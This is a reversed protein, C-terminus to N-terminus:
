CFANANPEIFRPFTRDWWFKPRNSHGLTGFLVGATCSSLAAVWLVAAVCCVDVLFCMVANIQAKTRGMVRKPGSGWATGDKEM